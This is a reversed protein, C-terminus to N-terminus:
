LRRLENLSLDPLQYIQDKKEKKQDDNLPKYFRELFDWGLSFSDLHGVVVIKEGKLIRQPDSKYSLTGSESTLTVVNLYKVANVDGAWGSVYCSTVLLPEGVVRGNEDIKKILLGRNASTQGIEVAKLRESM